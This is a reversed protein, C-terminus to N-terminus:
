LCLCTDERYKRLSSICLRYMRQAQTRPRSRSWARVRWCRQGAGEGACWQQNQHRDCAFSACITCGRPRMHHLRLPAYSAVAPACITCGRPHMHHLRLPAYPVVAPARVPRFPACMSRALRGPFVVVDAGEWGRGLWSRSSFCWLPCIQCRLGHAPHRMPRWRPGSTQVGTCQEALRRVSACLSSQGFITAKHCVTM